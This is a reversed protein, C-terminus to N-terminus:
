KVSLTWEFGKLQHQKHLFDLWDEWTADEGCESLFVNIVLAKDRASFREQKDRVGGIQEPKHM